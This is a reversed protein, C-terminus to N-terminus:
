VAFHGVGGSGGSVALTEDEHLHVADLAQQATLGALPIAAAEEFSLGAPKHAWHDEPGTTYEAYTGLQLEHRRNYGFVEDGPTFKTVAPGVAEVVGAADWGLVLPFHHPFAGALKSSM